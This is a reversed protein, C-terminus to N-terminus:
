ALWRRLTREFVSGFFGLLDTGQDPHFRHPDESGFVLM